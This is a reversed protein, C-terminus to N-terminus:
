ICSDEKCEDESVGHIKDLAELYHASISNINDCGYNLNEFKGLIRKLIEIAQTITFHQKIASNLFKVDKHITGDNGINVNWNHVVLCIGEVLEALRETIPEDIVLRKCFNLAAHMSNTDEETAKVEKNEELKTLDTHAMGLVLNIAEREQPHIIYVMDVRSMIDVVKTATQELSM